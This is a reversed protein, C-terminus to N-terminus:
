EGILLAVCELLGHIEYHFLFTNWFGHRHANTFM